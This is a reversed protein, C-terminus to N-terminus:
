VVVSLKLSICTGKTFAEVPQGVQVMSACGTHLLDSSTIVDQGSGTNGGEGPGGGSQWSCVM